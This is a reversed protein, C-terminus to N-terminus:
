ASLRISPLVVTIVNSTVGFVKFKGCLHHRLPSAANQFTEAYPVNHSVTLIQWQVQIFKQRQQRQQQPQIRSSKMLRAYQLLIQLKLDSSAKLCIDEWNSEFLTLRTKMTKILNKITIRVYMIILSNGMYMCGMLFVFIVDLTCKITNSKIFHFLTCVAIARFKWLSCLVMFFLQRNEFWINATMFCVCCSIQPSTFHLLIDVDWHVSAIYQQNDWFSINRWKQVCFLKM